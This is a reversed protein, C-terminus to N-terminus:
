ITRESDMKVLGGITSLWYNNSNDIILDRTTGHASFISDPLETITIIQAQAVISIIIFVIQLIATRIESRNKM